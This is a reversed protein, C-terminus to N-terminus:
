PGQVVIVFEGLIPSSKYKIIADEVHGRWTEEFIKSIERSISIKRNGLIELMDELTDLLRHPSVYMIITRLETVLTRLHKKRKKRSPSLFGEFAFSRIDMGSYILAPLFATPGPLAIIPLNQNIIEKILAAGPDSICPYGSDSVLAINKGSNLFNIILPIKKYENYLHYSIVQVKIEFHNLLKRTVRTDEAFILDVTKLTELVRLTIDKLNGIPTPCVYLTGKNMAKIIPDKRM